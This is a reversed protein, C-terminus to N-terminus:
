RARRTPRFRRSRSASARRADPVLPKKNPNEGVLPLDEGYPCFACGCRGSSPVLHGVAGLSGDGARLREDTRELFDTGIDDEADGTSRDQRGVVRQEVGCSDPMDKDAVLVVLDKQKTM